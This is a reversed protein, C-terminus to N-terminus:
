SEHFERRLRDIWTLLGCRFRYLEDGENNVTQPADIVRPTTLNARERGVNVLPRAKKIEPQM